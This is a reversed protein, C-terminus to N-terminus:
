VKKIEGAAMKGSRKDEFIAYEIRDGQQLERLGSKELASAHVFVDKDNKNDPTCFGYGKASNYWKIEGTQRTSPQNM